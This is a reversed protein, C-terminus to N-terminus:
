FIDWSLTEIDCLHIIFAVSEPGTIEFEQSLIEQAAM